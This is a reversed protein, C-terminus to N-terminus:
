NNRDPLLEEWIDDPIGDKLFALDEAPLTLLGRVVSATLQELIVQPSVNEAPIMDASGSFEQAPLGGALSFRFMWKDKEIKDKKRIIELTGSYSGTYAASVDLILESSNDNGRSLNRESMTGTIRQDKLELSAKSFERTRVGGAVRDTEATWSFSEGGEGDSKWTHNLLFNDRRTGRIDPTRLEIEDKELTEGRVTKWDLRVNRIDDPGSGAKGSYMIRILSGDETFMLTFSQRGDFVLRAPDPYITHQASVSTNRQFFANLEEGQIIVTVKRVAKGYDRYKESTKSATSHDPFADPLNHFFDRYDDLALYINRNWRFPNGGQAAQLTMVNEASESHGPFVYPQGGNSTFVTRVSEGLESERVTFLEQGDLLFSAESERSSVAGYIELHRLLRNLQSTRNEDFQSVKEAELRITFSVSSDTGLLNVTDRFLSARASCSAFLLFVAAAAACIRKGYM